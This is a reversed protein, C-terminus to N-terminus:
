PNYVGGIAGKGKIAFCDEMQASLTQSTAILNNACTCFGRANNPLKGVV